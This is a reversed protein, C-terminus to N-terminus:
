EKRLKRTIADFEAQLASDDFLVLPPLELSLLAEFAEHSTKVIEKLDSALSVTNWSSQAVERIREAERLKVRIIEEHQKLLGLYANAAEITKKNMAANKRFIEREHDTFRTQAANATDSKVAAEAGRLIENIGNRWEGDESKELYQRFGEAQVDIMVLYMGFYRKATTLDESNLFRGLNEVVVAIDKAVVANDILTEVNVPFICREAASGPMNLGINRLNDMVKAAQNAREAELKAKKDKIDNIRADYREAEDPHRVRDGEASVIDKQTEAIRKDLDDVAALLDRSDVPLLLERVRDFQKRMGKDPAKPRSGPKALKQYGEVVGGCETVIKEWRKAVNAQIDAVINGSYGGPGESLYIGLAIIAFVSALLSTLSLVVSPSRMQLPRVGANLLLFGVFVVAPNKEPLIFALITASVVGCLIAKGIGSLHARCIISVTSITVLAGIIWALAYMETEGKRAYGCDDNM